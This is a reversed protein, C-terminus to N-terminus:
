KLDTQKSIGIDFKQMRPLDLKVHQKGKKKHGSEM